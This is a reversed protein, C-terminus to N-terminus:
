CFEPPSLSPLTRSRPCLVNVIVSFYNGTAPVPVNGLGGQNHSNTPMIITAQTFGVSFILEYHGTQNGSCSEEEMLGNGLRFYGLHNAPPTLCFDPGIRSGSRWLGERLTENRWYVNEVMQTDNVTWTLRMSVQDRLNKGVDPLHVTPTIGLVSLEDADGVGSSLLIHPTGIVGASLIIEKRASLTRM